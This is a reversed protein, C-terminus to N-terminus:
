LNMNRIVETDITPDDSERLAGWIRIADGAVFRSPSVTVKKKTLFTTARTTVLTYTIGQNTATLVTPTSSGGVTISSLTLVYLKPLFLNPDLYIVLAKADLCDM